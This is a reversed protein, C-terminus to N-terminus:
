PRPALALGAGEVAAEVERAMPSSRFSVPRSALAVQDAEVVMM